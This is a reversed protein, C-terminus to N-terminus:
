DLHNYHAMAQKVKGDAGFWFWEAARQGPRPRRYYICVSEVSYLAEILEFHLDPMAALARQWYAGVAAKGRLTGSPEGMLRVIFPTSMVFDDAYHSLIRDLDHSNWAAIWEAAFRAAFEKTIM